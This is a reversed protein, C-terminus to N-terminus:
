TEGASITAAHVICNRGSREASYLAEDAIGILKSKLADASERPAKCPRLTALGVSATVNGVKVDIESIVMRIREAVIRAHKDDCDHLVVVFEEGGFRSLFDNERCAATLANSVAILVSDGMQHGYADNIRKFRDIDVMAVSLQEAKRNTNHVSWELHEELAGRNFLGTLPDRSALARLQEETEKLETLDNHAGLMRIAKGQKDRIAIGRCRVWITRGSAHRYRVVQDYAHNPDACHAHFNELAVKLDGPDILDQWESALHKKKTPDYGLLEWFRASMWEHEPDELDWYWLGDLSGNQLFDFVESSSSLLAYLEDRLYSSDSTSM